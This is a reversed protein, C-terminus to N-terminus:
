ERVAVFACETYGSQSMKIARRTLLLEVAALKPFWSVPIWSEKAAQRTFFSKASRIPYARLMKFGVRSLADCYFSMPLGRDPAVQELLLLTGGPKTVRALEQVIEQVTDRLTVCLVACTFAFDFTGSSFPTSTVDCRVIEAGHHGAYHRAADVMAPEKDTAFVQPAYLSLTEIFRGTGCGFDLATTLPRTRALERKLVRVHLAHMYANRRGLTDAADIVGRLLGM